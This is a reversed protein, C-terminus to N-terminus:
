TASSWSSGPISRLKRLDEKYRQLQNEIGIIMQQRCQAQKLMGRATARGRFDRWEELDRTKARILDKYAEIQATRERDVPTAPLEVGRSRLLSEGLRVMTDRLKRSHEERLKQFRGRRMEDHM